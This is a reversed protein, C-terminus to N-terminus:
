PRLRAEPDPLPPRPRAPLFRTLLAENGTDNYCLHDVLGSAMLIGFGGDRLKREARVKLHSLPDGPRAAHPLDTRDFGAGTDRVLLTVKEADLRCVVLVVRERQGRHGWEIANAVVERVALNTQQAAHPGLGCATLWPALCEMLEELRDPDSPLAFRVEALTEEQRRLRVADQAQEVARAVARPCAPDALDADPEVQLSSPAAGPDRVQILGLLNTPRHLKLQRCLDASCEARGALLVLDPQHQRAWSVAQRGDHSEVPLYGLDTLARCLLPASAAKEQVLLADRAM